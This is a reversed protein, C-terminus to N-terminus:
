NNRAGGEEWFEPVQTSIRALLRVGESLEM